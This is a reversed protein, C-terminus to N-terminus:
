DKEAKILADKGRGERTVTFGHDRELLQGVILVRRDLEAEVDYDDGARQRPKLEIKSKLRKVMASRKGGKLLEETIHYLNSGAKYPNDGTDEDADKAKAKKTAKAPTAKTPASAASTRRQKPTAEAVAAVEEKSAKKKGSAKRKDRIAAKLETASMEEWGEVNLTKAERRLEKASVKKPAETVTSMNTNRETTEDSERQDNHSVSSVQDRQVCVAYPDGDLQVLVVNPHGAVIGHYVGNRFTKGEPGVRFRIREKQTFGYIDTV